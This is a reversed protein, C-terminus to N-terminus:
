SFAPTSRRLTMRRWVMAMLPKELWVHGAVSMGAATVALALLTANPPIWDPLLRIIASGALGHTLYLLYSAGGLLALVRPGPLRGGAREWSVLGQLLIAAALSYVIPSPIAGFPLDESVPIARGISWELAMLSVLATAGCSLWIWPKAKPLVGLAIMIGLGFGLNAVGVLPALGEGGTQPIQFAFAAALAQWVAVLWLGHRGILIATGFIAYFVVEHRLSWSVGLLPATSPALALDAILRSTELIPQSPPRGLPLAMAVCLITLSVLLFPPYIRWFRRLVFRRAAVAGHEGRHQSMILFGSLVFFFEVGCHGARFAWGLPFVGRAAGVLDSFHFLMVLSAAVFRGAELTLFRDSNM